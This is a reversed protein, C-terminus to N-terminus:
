RCVVSDSDHVPHCVNVHRMGRGAARGRRAPPVHGMRRAGGGAVPAAGIAGPRSAPGVRPARRQEARAGQLAEPRRHVIFSAAATSMPTSDAGDEIVQFIQSAPVVTPMSAAVQEAVGDFSVLSKPRQYVHSRRSAAERPAGAAAGAAGAAAGAAGLSAAERRLRDSAAASASHPM